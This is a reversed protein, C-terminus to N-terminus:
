RSIAYTSEAVISRACTRLDDEWCVGGSAGLRRAGTQLTLAYTVRTRDGVKEWRVHSPITVILSDPTPSMALTFQASHRFEERVADALRQTLGDDGGTVIQVPVAGKPHAITAFCSGCGLLLFFPIISRMRWRQRAGQLDAVAGRHRRFVSHLLRASDIWDPWEGRGLRAPLEDGM